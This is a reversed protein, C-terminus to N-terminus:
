AIKHYTTIKNGQLFQKINMPKKGEVQLILIAIANKNTIIHLYNKNDTQLSLLDNSDSKIVETLHLKIRKQHTTDKLVFWAGPCISM